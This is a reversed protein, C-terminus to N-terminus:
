PLIDRKENTKHSYMAGFFAIAKVLGSWANPFVRKPNINAWKKGYDLGTSERVALEKGKGALTSREVKHKEADSWTRRSSCTRTIYVEYRTYGKVCLLM